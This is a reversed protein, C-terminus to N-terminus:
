VHDIKFLKWWLSMIFHCWSFLHFSHILLFIFFYLFFITWFVYSVPPKCQFYPTSLMNYAPGMVMPGNCNNAPFLPYWPMHPIMMFFEGLGSLMLLSPLTIYSANLISIWLSNWIFNLVLFVRVILFPIIWVSLDCLWWWGDHQLNGGAIISCWFQFWSWWHFRLQLSLM